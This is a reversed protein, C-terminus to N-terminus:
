CNVYCVEFSMTDNWRCSFLTFHSLCVPPCVYVHLCACKYFGIDKTEGLELMGRSRYSHRYVEQTTFGRTDNLVCPFVCMGKKNKAICTLYNSLIRSPAGFEVCCFSLLFSSTDCVASVCSESVKKVVFTVMLFCHCHRSCQTVFTISRIVELSIM